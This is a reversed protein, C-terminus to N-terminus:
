SATRYRLGRSVGQVRAGRGGRAKAQRQRQWTNPVEWTLTILSCRDPEELPAAAAAGEVDSAPAPAPAAAPPAPPTSDGRLLVPAPPRASRSRRLSAAMPLRASTMNSTPPHTPSPTPTPPPSRCWPLGPRGRGQGLFRATARCACRARQCPSLHVWGHWPVTCASPATCAPRPVSTPRVPPQM